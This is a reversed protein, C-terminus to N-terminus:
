YPLEKNILGIITELKKREEESLDFEELFYEALYGLVKVPDADVGDHTILFRGDPLLMTQLCFIPNLISKASLCDIRQKAIFDKVFKEYPSIDKKVIKSDM